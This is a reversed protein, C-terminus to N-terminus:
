KGKKKGGKGNGKKKAMRGGGIWKPLVFEPLRRPSFLTSCRFRRFCKALAIEYV